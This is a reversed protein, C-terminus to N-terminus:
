FREFDDLALSGVGRSQGRAHQCRPLGRLRSSAPTVLIRHGLITWFESRWAAKFSDNIWSM